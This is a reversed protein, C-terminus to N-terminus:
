AFERELAGRVKRDIALAEAVLPIAVVKVKARLDVRGKRVMTAAGEAERAVIVDPDEDVVAERYSWLGM